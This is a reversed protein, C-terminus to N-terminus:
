VADSPRISRNFRPSLRATVSLMEDDDSLLMGHIATGILWPHSCIGSLRPRQLPDVKMMSSILAKCSESISAFSANFQVPLEKSQQKPVTGSCLIYLLVGLSWVDVASTLGQQDQECPPESNSAATPSTHLRLEPAAYAPTGVALPSAGSTGRMAGEYKAIGFDTLKLTVHFPSVLKADGQHNDMVSFVDEAGMLTSPEPVQHQQKEQEDESAAAAAAATSSTNSATRPPPTQPASEVPRQVDILINEPKLDCHIIGRSHIYVVAELIQVFLHRAEDETFPCRGRGVVYDFLDGGGVYELVMALFGPGEFADLVKVIHPHDMSRMMQVETHLSASTEETCLKWREMVKVAVREGTGRDIGLRVAAFSGQGLVPGLTYRQMEEAAGVHSLCSVLLSTFHFSYAAVDAMSPNLFSITDRPRLISCRGRGVRRGNIFTGNFSHDHVFVEDGLVSLVCHLRSVASSTLVVDSCAGDRGIRVGEVGFRVPGVDMSSSSASSLPVLEFLDISDALADTAHPQKVTCESVSGDQGDIHGAVSTSM